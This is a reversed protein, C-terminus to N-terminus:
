EVLDKIEYVKPPLLDTKKLKWNKRRRPTVKQEFLLQAQQPTNAIIFLASGLRDKSKENSYTYLKM